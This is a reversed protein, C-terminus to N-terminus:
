KISFTGVSVGKANFEQVSAGGNVLALRGSGTWAPNYGSGTVAAGPGTYIGGKSTLDIWSKYLPDYVSQTIQENSTVKTGVGYPNVALAGQSTPPPPKAALMKQPITPVPHLGVQIAPSGVNPATPSAIPATNTQVVPVLYQPSGTTASGGTLTSATGSASSGGKIFTFAVYGLVAAGFVLVLPKHTKVWSLDM